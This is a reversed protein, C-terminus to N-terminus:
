RQNAHNGDEEMDSTAREADSRSLLWREIRPDVEQEGVASCDDVLQLDDLRHEKKLM